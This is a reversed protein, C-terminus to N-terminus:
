ALAAFGIVSQQVSFISYVSKMFSDGIVWVNDGLGLDQAALGGLCQMSGDEIQGLNFSTDDIRWKHGGNWSFSILPDASCPFSYFGMTTDYLKSGHIKSYFKKVASPPGYMITTGSDIITDFNSVVTTSGVFISAGGIQWFGNGPRSLAHFEPVGVFLSSDRGGLFLTSGNGSTLKFAFEGHPVTGQKVATFFFPDGNLNSLQPFALGLVGDVPDNNFANSLTIVPSFIQNIANVGSICVIDEWVSGSVNSGDGYEISFVGPRQSGTASLSANYKNKSNCTSKKCSTSPVWLDSSGTDFDILFEQAPTGISIRGAWESDDNENILTESQRRRLTEPVVALSKIESGINRLFFPISAKNLAERGRNRELNILNQRHKNQIAITQFIAKDHDFTGDAKTISSRKTLPIRIGQAQSEASTAALLSIAGAFLTAQYLM